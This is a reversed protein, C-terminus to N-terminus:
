MLITFGAQTFDRDATLAHNIGRERMLIFSACDTLGWSQDPRSRYLNFADRFQDESQSVIVVNPDVHLRIVEETALNRYYEGLRSVANLLETLVMKTTVIDADALELSLLAAIEHWPDTRVLLAFWYSTDAFVIRM